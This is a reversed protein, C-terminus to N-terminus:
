SCERFKFDYLFHSTFVCVGACMLAQECGCVCVCVHLHVHLVAVSACRM